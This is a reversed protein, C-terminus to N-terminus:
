SNEDIKWWIANKSFIYLLPYRDQINLNGVCLQSNVHKFDLKEAVM